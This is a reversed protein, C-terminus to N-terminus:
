RKDRSIAERAGQAMVSPAQWGSILSVGWALASAGRTVTPAWGQLRQGWTGATPILALSAATSGGVPADPRLQCRSLRESLGQRFGERLVGHTYYFPQRLGSLNPTVQTVAIHM